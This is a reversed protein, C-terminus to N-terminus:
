GVEEFEADEAECVVPVIPVVEEDFNDNIDINVRGINVQVAAKSGGDGSDIWGDREEAKLFKEATGDLVGDESNAREALREQISGVLDARAILLESVMKGYVPHGNIGLDWMYRFEAKTLGGAAATQRWNCGRTVASRMDKIREHTPGRRAYLIAQRRPNDPIPFGIHTEVIEGTTKNVATIAAETMGSFICHWKPMTLWLSYASNLPSRVPLCHSQIPIRGVGRLPVGPPPIKPRHDGILTGIHCPPPPNTGNQCQIGPDSRSLSVNWRM